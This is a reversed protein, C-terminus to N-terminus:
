IDVIVQAFWGGDRRELILGHYTAAKVEHDLEHRDPDISEGGITAALSLGDLAVHVDFRGYLAHRTEIRFILENLWDLLLREPSDAALVVTEEDRPEITSRDATVVDFLGQAASRFLDDLDDAFIRLGLDATHDFVEVSGMGM